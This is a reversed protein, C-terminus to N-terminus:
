PAEFFIVFDVFFDDDDLFPLFCFLFLLTADAEEVEEEEDDDRGAGEDVEGGAAAGDM